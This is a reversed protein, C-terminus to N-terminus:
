RQRDPGHDRTAHILGLHAAPHTPMVTVSIRGKVPHNESHGTNLTAVLPAVVAGKLVPSPPHPWGAGM